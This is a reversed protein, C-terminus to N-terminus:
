RDPQPLSPAPPGSPLALKSRVHADQPIMNDCRGRCSMRKPSIARASASIFQDPYEANRGNRVSFFNDDAEAVYTRPPGKRYSFNFHCCSTRYLKLWRIGPPGPQRLYGPESSWSDEDPGLYRCLLRRAREVDFPVIEVSGSAIVQLIRGTNIECVDVM